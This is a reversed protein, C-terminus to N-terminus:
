NHEKPILVQMENDFLELLVTNLEETEMIKTVPVRDNKVDFVCAKKADKINFFINDFSPNDSLMDELDVPETGDAVYMWGLGIDCEDFHEYVGEHDTMGISNDCITGDRLQVFVHILTKDDDVKVVAVKYPRAKRDNNKRM